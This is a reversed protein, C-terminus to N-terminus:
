NNNEQITDEAGNNTEEAKQDEPRGAEMVQSLFVRAADQDEISQLPQVEQAKAVVSEDVSPKWKADWEEMFAAVDETSMSTTATREAAADNNEEVEIVSYVRDGISRTHVKETRLPADSGERCCTTLVKKENLVTGDVDLIHEQIVSREDIKEVNSAMKFAKSRPRRQLQIPHETIRNRNSPNKIFM